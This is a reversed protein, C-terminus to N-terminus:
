KSKGVEHWQYEEGRNAEKELEKLNNLIKDEDDGYKCM